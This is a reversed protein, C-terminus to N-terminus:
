DLQYSSFLYCIGVTHYLSYHFMPYDSSREKDNWLIDGELPLIDSAAIM